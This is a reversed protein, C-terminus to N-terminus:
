EMQLWAASAEALPKQALVRQPLPTSFAPSLSTSARRGLPTFAPEREIVLALDPTQAAPQGEGRDYRIDLGSMTAAFRRRPEDM